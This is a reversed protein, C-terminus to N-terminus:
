VFILNLLVTLDLCPLHVESIVPSKILLLKERDKLYGKAKQVTRIELVKNIYM